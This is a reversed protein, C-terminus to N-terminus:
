AGGTPSGSSASAVKERVLTVVRGVNVTWGVGFARPGIVHAGEPDWMAKRLREMTPRRFDYPVVGAVVGHWTREDAPKRREQVVAAVALAFTVLRILKRGRYRKRRDETSRAMDAEEQVHIVEHNV